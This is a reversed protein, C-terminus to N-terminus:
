VSLGVAVLAAVLDGVANEYVIVAAVGCEVGGPDGLGGDLGEDLGGNGLVDGRLDVLHVSQDLLNGAAVKVVVVEKIQVALGAGVGVRLAVAAIKSPKVGKVALDAGNVHHSQIGLGGSGAAYPAEQRHSNSILAEINRGDANIVSKLDSNKIFVIKENGFIIGYDIREGGVNKSVVRDYNLIFDERQTM